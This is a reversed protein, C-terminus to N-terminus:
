NTNIKLREIDRKVKISILVMTRLFSPYKDKYHKDYFIEMAKFRQDTVWLKTEKDATSINKSIKKIGSSVGKYHLAKYKPVFYIKFGAQKIRYCFDIDEGYFFYDEDWWNLKKGLSYKMLMFSGALADIEHTKSFDLYTLNYGAFLKSKPFLKSLKSFHCFARWPTPFGRHCSDDIKGDLLHVLCTATGAEPHEKMFDMMGSITNKELVMDPNLFLVYEGTAKKIAINNGRSFGENKENEIFTLNKYKGRIKKILDATNENPSNDSLIVEFNIGKMGSYVSDLCKEITSESKFTVIIISLDIKTM